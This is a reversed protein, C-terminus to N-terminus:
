ELHKDCDDFICDHCKEECLNSEFSKRLQCWHIIDISDYSQEYKYATTRYMHRRDFYVDTEKLEVNLEETIDISMGNHLCTSQVHQRSRYIADNNFYKVHRISLTRAHNPTVVEIHTINPPINNISWRHVRPNHVTNCLYQKNVHQYNSITNIVDTASGMIPLTDCKLILSNANICRTLLYATFEHLVFDVIVLTKVKNYNILNLIRRQTNDIMTKNLLFKLSPDITWSTITKYCWISIQKCETSVASLRALDEFTLFHYSGFEISNIM